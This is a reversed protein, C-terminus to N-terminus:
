HACSHQRYAITSPAVGFTDPVATKDERLAMRMIAMHHIAHEINFLIERDTHTQIRLAEGGAHALLWIPGPPWKKLEALIEKLASTALQPDTELKLDRRRLEYNLEGSQRARLMERFFEVIHRMHQGLTSGSLLVRPRCYADPELSHTVQALQDFLAEVTSILAVSM